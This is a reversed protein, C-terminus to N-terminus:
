HDAWADTSYRAHSESQSVRHPPPSSEIIQRFDLGFDRFRLANARVVSGSSSPALKLGTNPIGFMDGYFEILQQFL